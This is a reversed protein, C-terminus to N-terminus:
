ANISRLSKQATSKEGSRLDVCTSGSIIENTEGICMIARTGILVQQISAHCIVKLSRQMEAHGAGFFPNRQKPGLAFLSYALASTGNDSLVIALRVDGDEFSPL